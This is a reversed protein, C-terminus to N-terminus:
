PSIKRFLEKQPVPLSTFFSSEKVPGDETLRRPSFIVFLPYVMFFIFVAAISASEGQQDDDKSLRCYIAARFGGALAASMVDYGNMM